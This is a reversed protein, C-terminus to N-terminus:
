PNGSAELVIPKARRKPMQGILLQVTDPDVLRQRGDKANPIATLRGDRIWREVTRRSVGFQAAAQSISIRTMVREQRTICTCHTRVTTSYQRSETSDLWEPLSLGSQRALRLDRVHLNM